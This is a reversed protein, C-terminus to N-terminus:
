HHDRTVVADVAVACLCLHFPWDINPASRYMIDYFRNFCAFHLTSFVIYYFVSFRVFRFTGHNSDNASNRASRVYDTGPIKLVCDIDAENDVDTSKILGIITTSYLGTANDRKSRKPFFYQRDGLRDFCFRFFFVPSLSLSLSLSIMPESQVPSSCNHHFWDCVIRVNNFAGAGSLYKQRFMRHGM